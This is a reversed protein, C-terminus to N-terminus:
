KEILTAEIQNEKLWKKADDIHEVTTALYNKGQKAYLTGLLANPVKLDEENVSITKMKSNKNNLSDLGFENSSVLSNYMKIRNSLLKEDKISQLRKNLDKELDMKELRSLGEKLENEVRSIIMYKNSLVYSDDVKIPEILTQVKLSLVIGNFSQEYKEFDPEFTDVMDLPVHVTGSITKSEEVLYENGKYWITKNLLNKIVEHEFSEATYISNDSISIPYYNNGFANVCLVGNALGIGNIDFPAVKSKRGVNEEKTLILCDADLGVSETALAIKKNNFNIDNLFTPAVVSLRTDDVKRLNGQCQEYNAKSWLIHNIYSFVEPEYRPPISYIHKIDLVLYTSKKDVVIIGIDFLEDTSRFFGNNVGNKKLDSIIKDSVLGVLVKDTQNLFSEAQKLFEYIFLGNTDVVILSEKVTEIISEVNISSQKPELKVFGFDLTNDRYNFTKTKVM